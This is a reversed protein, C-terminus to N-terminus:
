DGGRNADEEEEKRAVWGAINRQRVRSLALAGAPVDVAVTTGAGVYAGDGVRVPAVLQTDSGIFAGAGIETRHKNKGDYNCTITGAGVNARPGVTADGLYTLHQAKAGDGLQTKKTEVFNGLKCGKGVVTGERLRAFPGVQSGEGVQALELHCYAKILVGDGIQTNVLYAGQQLHCGEGVRTDGTLTVDPEIVTGQGVVVSDELWVREPARLTVGAEMLRARLRRQVVAEVAALGARDNVGQLAEAGAGELVVAVIAREEAHAVGVLDTLYYEGQANETGLGALTRFLFGADVRYLGANVEDIALEAPSADRAEVIRALGGATDRVLRGYAAPDPLRMGVVSVPADGAAADIRRLLSAEMAPVDGSLIFVDGEFGALADRACLVAHATGLQEAQEAVEVPADPFAARLYAAVAELQHGLIVVVREAGLELAARVPYHIMPRGAVPHLVKVTKSRMRTGLGAAMIVVAKSRAV